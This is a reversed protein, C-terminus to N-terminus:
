TYRGVTARYDEIVQEETFYRDYVSFKSLTMRSSNSPTHTYTGDGNDSSSTKSGILFKTYDSGLDKLIHYGGAINLSNKYGDVYMASDDSGNSTFVIHHWTDSYFGYDSLDSTNAPADWSNGGQRYTGRRYIFIYNAPNNSTPATANFLTVDISTDIPFKVYYVFTGAGGKISNFVDLQDTLDFYENTSLSLEGRAVRTYSPTNVLSTDGRSKLDTFNSGSGVYSRQNAADLCLVLGDTLIAPSHNLSM